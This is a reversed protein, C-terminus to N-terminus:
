RENELTNNRLIKCLCCRGEIIEAPFAEALLRAWLSPERIQVGVTNIALVVCNLALPNGFLKM